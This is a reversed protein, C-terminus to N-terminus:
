RRLRRWLLALLGLLVVVFSGNVFLWKIPTALPAVWDLLPTQAPYRAMVTAAALNEIYDFLLGLIPVLNLLQWRSGPPFARSFLWSIATALFLTYVLPWIVDFTLRARVYDRRGEPGYGEAWHYLDDPTYLFSADPSGIGGSVADATAAQRPLVTATFAIFLLLALLAVVSTSRRRIWASLSAM